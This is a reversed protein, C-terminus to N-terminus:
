PLRLMKARKLFDKEALAARYRNVGGNRAIERSISSAARNLDRAISSISYGRALSRSISEREDLSLADPRRVRTRLEIGNHHLLYSFVTAPPKEVDAAIFSMPRRQQWLEWIRSKRKPTMSGYISTM